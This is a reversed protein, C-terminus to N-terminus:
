GDLFNPTAFVPHLSMDRWTMATMGADTVFAMLPMTVKMPDPAFRIHEETEIDLSSSSHEGAALYELGPLLGQELSGFARLVPGECPGDSEIRASVEDG